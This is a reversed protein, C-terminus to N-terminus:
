LWGHLQQHLMRNVQALWHHLIRIPVWFPWDSSAQRWSRCSVHKRNLWNQFQQQASPRAHIVMPPTCTVVDNSFVGRTLVRQRKPLGFSAIRANSCSQM